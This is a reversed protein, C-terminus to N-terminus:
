ASQSEKSEITKHLEKDKMVKMMQWMRKETKEDLEQSPADPGQWFLRHKQVFCELLFDQEERWLQKYFDYEVRAQIAEERTARFVLITHRGRGRKYALVEREHNIKYFIQCLLKKENKDGYKFEHDELSENKLDTDSVGYKEMLEMLKKKATEKEGGVGREALALLKKMLVM